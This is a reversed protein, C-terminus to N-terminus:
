QPDSVDWVQGTADGSLRDVLARASEDPTILRGEAHNRVFRVHTAESVRGEGTARVQAQMATDVSGPRYVNATVGTGALEVALNLTHAELAGKTAAYANGGVMAGPHGVIASSVNVIRGWGAQIMHPLLAFSLAAPAFVNIGFSAAWAAPDMGASPGLPDLAAANNILIDVPGLESVAQEVVGSISAPDGLDAVVAVAACGREQVLKATESLQDKTRAVLVQAVGMDALSLAMARGIGRGAGTVLAIKDNLSM